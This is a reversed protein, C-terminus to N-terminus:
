RVLQRISRVACKGGCCGVCEARVKVALVFTQFASKSPQAVAGGTGVIPQPNTDEFHIVADKSSEIQPPGQYGSAIGAPAIAIVTKAPVGLSMIANDPNVLSQMLSVERPGAVYVTDSPDIGAAGIAAVLNALDHAITEQLTTAAPAATTPTVGNLL